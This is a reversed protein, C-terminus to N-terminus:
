CSTTLLPRSGGGAPGADGQSASATPIPRRGQGGCGIHEKREPSRQARVNVKVQNQVHCSRSGSPHQRCMSQGLGADGPPPRPHLHLFLFVSNTGSCGANSLQEPNPLGAKQKDRCCGSFVRCPPSPTCPSSGPLPPPWNQRVSTVGARWRWRGARLAAAVARVAPPSLLRMETRYWRGPRPHSM